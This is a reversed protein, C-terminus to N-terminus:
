DPYILCRAVHYLAGILKWAIYTPMTIATETYKFNKTVVYCKRAYERIDDACKHIRKEKQRMLNGGRRVVEM